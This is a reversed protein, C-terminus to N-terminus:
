QSRKHCFHGSFHGSLTMFECLKVNAAESNEPQWNQWTIGPQPAAATPPQGPVVPLVLCAKQRADKFPPPFHGIVFGEGM